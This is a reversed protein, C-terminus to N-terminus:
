APAVAVGIRSDALGLYLLWSGRHLVLAQAFVVDGVQGVHDDDSVRLFPETDRAICSMPDLPDFLVQAPQYAHRPVAPDGHVPHNAGNYLLVVGHDTRVAPPGPEVLLSDFRGARPSLVPRLVPRGPIREIQWGRATPVLLRDADPDFEVPQWRVLDDSTAAYMTGEGWYMVFRGSQRGDVRAAVLRGDRVETVISGSKSLLRLSRTGAFAPGQKHWVRLDDSTAVFLTPHRGDFATYTCVYGGDPHAVVRPDECGGPWEWAQWPDDGPFLVPEPDLRFDLGDDSVALGLRSTGHARRDDDEARVLLHVRGDHVVAAPNFVDKAAWAVRRGTVPCDFGLAPDAGLIPSPHRRFPGLRWEDTM